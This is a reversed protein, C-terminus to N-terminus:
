PVNAAEEKVKNARNTKNEKTSTILNSQYKGNIPLLRNVNIERDTISTSIGQRIKDIDANIANFNIQLRASKDRVYQAQTVMKKAQLLLTNARALYVKSQEVDAYSQTFFGFNVCLLVLAWLYKKM